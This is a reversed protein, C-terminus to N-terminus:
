RGEEKVLNKSTQNTRMEDVVLKGQYLTAPILVLAGLQCNGTLLCGGAIVMSGIIVGNEKLQKKM